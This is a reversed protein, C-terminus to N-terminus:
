VNESIFDEFKYSASRPIEAFECVEIAFRHGLCGQLAAVLQKKEGATLARMAAVNIDIRDPAGAEAYDGIDYRVLPM